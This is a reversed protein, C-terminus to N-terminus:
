GPLDARVVALDKWTWTTEPAFGTERLWELQAALPDPRDFGPTTPTVADEERDPVVVDALVFRGGPKLVAAIRRFLDRKGDADLHHIALCSVVLDFPGEPLPDELRSVRLDGAVDAEALMAESEDIGVLRAKPHVALVRKATMGTGVGLELIDQVAVGETARATEDQLEDFVPIDARMNELYTSPNFHFQTV